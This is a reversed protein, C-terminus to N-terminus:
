RAVSEFRAAVPNYREIPRYDSHWQVAPQWRALPHTEPGRWCAGTDDEPPLIPYVREVLVVQQPLPRDPHRSRYVELRWKLYTELSDANRGVHDRISDSWRERAAELTEEDRQTLYPILYSEYRRFRFKGLRLFHYRDQPENDSQFTETAPFPSPTLALAAIEMAAAGLRSAAALRAVAPAAPRLGVLQLEDEQLQLLNATAAAQIGDRANFLTLTRALSPLSTPDPQWVLQLAPFGTVQYVSPAFLSWRQDQGTLQTWRRLVTSFEEPIQWAHGGKSAYGPLAREIGKAIPDPIYPQADQYFGILNTLVLFALQCTVFLGLIVQRPAPRVTQSMETNTRRPMTMSGSLIASDKRRRM